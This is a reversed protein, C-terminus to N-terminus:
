PPHPSLLNPRTHLSLYHITEQWLPLLEAYPMQSLSSALSSLASARYSESQISRAASLAEPLLEPPLKDALAKLASARSSESQISRAASLAEPLVEPLKDAIARLASVRYSEDQISRATSLAEPFLEPPLKNVIARLACARYSEDQLSRATSLAEPLLEPPLKDAIARLADACYKESRISRAASLAEPLLEPPLKDAIARLAFTRYSESQISRATSLAEPLLEPLKGALARLADARYREDQISRAASLAESLALKELNPPLYNVLKAIAKVKEEPEPKQLAYALGQEATWFNNKVLAVLLEVPLNAALSNLSATILGYRCQLGVIQPLTAETWNAEALEWARSIDTIYGGTQGLKERVEYWGNNGTASEERLLQHIQEIQAAKELHWVLHQHIYGDNPLTHWLNNHTKQRYKELFVAHADALKLGLGGLGGQFHHFNEKLGGKSPPNLPIQHNTHVSNPSPNELLPATLLNCALDHFLDHLRYTPTGDALPVGTLLLAKNRFYQLTKAAERENIGWLTAAMMKNINVDEPLVGLWAFHQQKIPPMRKISLNLSATLSLRKLSAEDTIEEAEPRDFSRLRAVELQIDALLEDWTIGDAVQAAALELALPLYGVGKALNAASLREKGTIERGLKKRLLEMAQTDTMIDLNYISAALADAIAGERTTVLVQCRAGGVKFAQADQTNWADDVVLLVAKDYLLTRLQSVTAEVSTPKFSYDGLAQVWGSLLSLVDPQQGLTAWLIGDCFQTQIEADYALAAALTSKGVSGLGHIATIVLTQNGRLLRTKLDDSYEPREVFHTPLPPAQFIQIQGLGRAGKGVLSPPVDLPSLNPSSNALKSKNPRNKEWVEDFQKLNKERDRSWLKLTFHWDDSGKTQIRNDELIKVFDKLLNLAERIQTKTLKGPHEDKQTLLELTVLTTKITLKPNVSDEEKWDYEIKLNDEEIEGAVFCLLAELLRKVRKQIEPGKSPPRAM